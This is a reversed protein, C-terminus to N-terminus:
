FPLDLFLQDMHHDDLKVDQNQDLFEYIGVRGTVEQTLVPNDPDTTDFVDLFYQPMAQDFGYAIYRNNDLEKIYRSM